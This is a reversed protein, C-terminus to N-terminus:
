QRVEWISLAGADRLLERARERESDTRPSAVALLFMDQSARAFGGIEFLPYNLRPLGSQVFFTILGTVAAAFIGIAFPFMVFTPWSNLPRGGSNIPYAIVASYWELGYALAAICVGGIFMAARIRPTQPTLERVLGEVPYPTFADLPHFGAKRAKRAMARLADHGSFAALLMDTM